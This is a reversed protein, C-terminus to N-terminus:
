VGALAFGIAAEPIVRPLSREAQDLGKCPQLPKAGVFRRMVPAVTTTSPPKM